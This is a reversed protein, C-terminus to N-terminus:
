RIALSSAPARKSRGGRLHATVEAVQRETQQPELLMVRGDVGTPVRPLFSFPPPTVECAVGKSVSAHQYM